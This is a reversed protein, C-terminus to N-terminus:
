WRGFCGLLGPAGLASISRKEFRPAGGLDALVEPATPGLGKPYQETYLIPLDLLRAARIMVRVRAVTREWEWLVQRYGEQVDIVLLLARDPDIVRPHM